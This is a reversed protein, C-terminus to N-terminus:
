RSRRNKAMRLEAQHRLSDLVEVILYGVFAYVMLAFIASFELEFGGSLEPSPFMGQFPALLPSTTEYVWRTFPAATSANFLKLVIRLSLLLEVLGTIFNFLSALIQPPLKMNMGGNYGRTLYIDPEHPILSTHSCKKSFYHAHCHCASGEQLGLRDDGAGLHNDILEVGIGICALIFPSLQPVRALTHYIQRVPLQPILEAARAYGM